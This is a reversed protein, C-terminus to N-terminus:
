RDELPSQLIICCDDGAFDLQAVRIFSKEGKPVFMGFHPDIWDCVLENGNPCTLLFPDPNINNCAQQKALEHLSTLTM